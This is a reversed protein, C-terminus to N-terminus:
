PEVELDGAPEHELGGLGGLGYFQRVRAAPDLCVAGLDDRLRPRGQNRAEIALCRARELEEVARQQAPAARALLWNPAVGMILALVLAVGGVISERLDLETLRDVLGPRPSGRGARWLSRLLGLVGLGVAAAALLSWTAPRLLAPEGQELVGVVIGLEGIFGASGPAGVLVLSALMALTLGRPAVAAWGALEGLNGVGDRRLSHCVATLVTLGLGHALLYLGLGGRAAVSGSVAAVIALSLHLIAVHALLRGPEREAWCVLAAYIAGVVAVAAIPDAWEGAALPFMPLGVRTLLFLGMPMGAGLVAAVVPTPGSVCIAPLPAHLPVLPLATAVAVLVLAFGLYQSAPPLTLAAIEDLSWTWAGGTAHAHSVGFLVVVAVLAAAGPLVHAAYRRAAATRGPVGMKGDGHAGLLIVVAFTALEWAAALTVLDRALVVAVWAAQLGLMGVVLPPEGPQPQRGILLALPFVLALLLLLPLESGDVGLSWAVGYAPLWPHVSAYQVGAGAPDFGLVLAVIVGLEALAGVLGLARALVPESRPVAGVALAAALPLLVALTSLEVSM